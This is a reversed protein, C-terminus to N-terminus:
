VYVFYVRMDECDKGPVRLRRRGTAVYKRATNGSRGSHSNKGQNDDSSVEFALSTLLRRACYAHCNHVGSRLVEDTVSTGDDTSPFTTCQREGAIMINPSVM